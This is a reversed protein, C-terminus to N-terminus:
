CCRIQDGRQLSNMIHRRPSAHGISIGDTAHFDLAVLCGCYRRIGAAREPEARGRALSLKLVLRRAVGTLRAALVYEFLVIRRVLFHAAHRQRLKARCTGAAEFVLWPGLSM